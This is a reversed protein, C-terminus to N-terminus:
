GARGDGRSPLALEARVSDVLGALREHFTAPSLGFRVELRRLDMEFAPQAVRAHWEMGCLTAVQGVAVPLSIEGPYGVNLAEAAAGVDAALAAKATYHAADDVHLAAWRVAPGTLEFERRTLFARAANYLVGSRRPLGFLGPFRLAVDGPRARALLAREGLWKGRAYAGRPPTASTESVPLTLEGEYVTMSSVFVVRGPAHALVNRLMDVSRDAATADEYGAADRPVHAACHVVVSPAVRELVSRVADPDLLDCREESHASTAVAAVGHRAIARLVAAGLYGAAGTVLVPKV